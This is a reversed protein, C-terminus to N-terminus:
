SLRQPRQQVSICQSAGLYNSVIYSMWTSILITTKALTLRLVIPVVCCSIGYLHYTREWKELQRHSYVKTLHLIRGVGKSAGSKM